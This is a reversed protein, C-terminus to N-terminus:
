YEESPFPVEDGEYKINNPDYHDYQEDYEQAPYSEYELYSIYIFKLSRLFPMLLFNCWVMLPNKRLTFKSPNKREHIIVARSENGLTM